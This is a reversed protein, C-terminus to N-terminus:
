GSGPTGDQSFEKDLWQPTEILVYRPRGNGVKTIMVKIQAQQHLHINLENVDAVAKGVKGVIVATVGDMVKFEFTRPTPLAGKFEGKLIQSDEHLNDQGLRELSRKVEGVDNFRFARNNFELACVADKKALTDLFSRIAALARPDIESAAEALEDDSGLTGQLLAQTQELAQEVPSPEQFVSTQGSQYEELEFGFSGAVTNTILLQNLERNPIPGTTALNQFLSAAIMAVADSFKSVAATGFEVSIGHSEVVPQGRFTLRARAPEREDIKAANLSEEVSRLRAESSMRDIVFEEPTEAMVRELFSKEALLHLYDQRNM